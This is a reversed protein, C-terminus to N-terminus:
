IDYGEQAAIMPCRWFVGTPNALRISLKSSSDKFEGIRLQLITSALDSTVASCGICVMQSAASIIIGTVLWGVTSNIVCGVVVDTRLCALLVAGSALRDLLIVASADVVARTALMFGFDEGTQFTPLALLFATFLSTWDNLRACLTWGCLTGCLTWGCLIDCLPGGGHEVVLDWNDWACLQAWRTWFTGGECCCFLDLNILVSGGFTVTLGTTVRWCVWTGGTVVEVSRSSPHSVTRPRVRDLVDGPFTVGTKVRAEVM